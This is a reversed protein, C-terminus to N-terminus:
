ATCISKKTLSPSVVLFILMFFIKFRCLLYTMMVGRVNNTQDGPILLRNFDLPPSRPSWFGVPFFIQLFMGTRHMCIYLFLFFYSFYNHPIHRCACILFVRLRFHFIRLHFFIEEFLCSVHDDKIKFEQLCIKPTLLSAIKHHTVPPM